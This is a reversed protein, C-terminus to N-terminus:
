HLTSKDAFLIKKLLRDFEKTDNTDWNAEVMPPMKLPEQDLSFQQDRLIPMVQSSNIWVIPDVTNYSHMPESSMLEKYHNLAQQKSSYM